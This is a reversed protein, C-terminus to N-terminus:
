AYPVTGDANRGDCWAARGSPRIWQHGVHEQRNPCTMLPAKDIPIPAAPPLSLAIQLRAGTCEILRELTDVTPSISDCEVRSIASQATQARAALDNQTMGARDRAERILHGVKM